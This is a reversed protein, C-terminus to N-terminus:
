EHNEGEKEDEDKVIFFTTNDLVFSYVTDEFIEMGESVVGKEGDWIVCDCTGNINQKIPFVEKDFFVKGFREPTFTGNNTTTNRDIDYDSVIGTNLIGEKTFRANVTITEGLLGFTVNTGNLVRYEEKNDIVVLIDLTKPPKKFSLPFLYVDVEAYAEDKCISVTTKSFWMCCLKKFHENETGAPPANHVCIEDLEKIRELELQKQKKEKLCNLQALLYRENEEIASLSLEENRKKLEENEKLSDRLRRNEEEIRLIDRNKPRKFKKDDYMRKVAIALVESFPLGIAETSCIVGYYLGAEPSYSNIDECLNDFVQEDYNPLNVLVNFKEGGIRYVRAYTNMIMEAIGRLVKDGKERGDKNIKELNVSMAILVYKHTRAYEWSEKEFAYKNKCGTLADFYLDQELLSIKDELQKAKIYYNELEREKKKMM